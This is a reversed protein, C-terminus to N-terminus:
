SQWRPRSHVAAMWAADKKKKPNKEEKNKGLDCILKSNEIKKERSRIDFSHGHDRIFGDAYM